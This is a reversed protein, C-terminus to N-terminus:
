RENQRKGERKLYSDLRKDSAKNSKYELSYIPQELVGEWIRLCNVGIRKSIWGPLRRFEM